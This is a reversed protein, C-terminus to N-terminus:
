VVLSIYECCLSQQKLLYKVLEIKSGSDLLEHKTRKFSNLLNHSSNTTCGNSSCVDAVVM